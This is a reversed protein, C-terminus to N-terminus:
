QCLYPNPREFQEGDLLELSLDFACMVGRNKFAYYSIDNGAVKSVLDLAANTNCFAITYQDREYDLTLPRGIVPEGDM